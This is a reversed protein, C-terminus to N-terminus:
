YNKIIQGGLSPNKCRTTTPFTIPLNLIRKVALYGFAQSEIFDGDFQYVDIDKIVLKKDGFYKYINEVLKKNKRGGGCIIFNKVEINNIQNIKKLGESILYATFENLTSCGDELNLGKAFSIDFDNIDMSDKISSIQFNDISQNLILENVKGSSALFGNEDFKKNSNKRVWEDILCNGPAVDYAFIEKQIEENGLITSVNTIGGINIINLPYTLKKKKNIQKSILYHFIPTLPAGQGSNDIDQKRFNNVVTCNTLQSLLNGDGLQKSIKEKINHYVTQGHFGILEPKPGNKKVFENIIKANFITFKKEIEGISVINEDLDKLENIKKRLSILDKYLENNFEYFENSIQEFYDYGDTKILSVDAGDMSTGSMLGLVTFIKKKM